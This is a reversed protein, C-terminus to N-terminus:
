KRLIGEKKALIELLKERKKYIATKKAVPKILEGITLWDYYDNSCWRLKYIQMQQDTLEPLLENKIGQLRYLRQLYPDEEKAEAIRQAKDESISSRGGGVNEDRFERYPFEIEFERRGVLKEINAIKEYDAELGQMEKGSLREEIM